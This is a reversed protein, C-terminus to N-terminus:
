GRLHYMLVAGAIGVNLSEAQGYIPIYVRKDAKELLKEKIGQGENGVILAANSPSELQQFPVADQLASAWIEIGAEISQQVFENLDGTSVPIHFISGQTARIVKDNYADVTGTGLVVQDFGAADATRILTGVNGPDQVADLMLTLRAPNYTHDKQKVVAAIGQPTETEAIARFVTDSVLVSPLGEPITFDTGDRIILEIIEWDSNLVEEVLHFGEVIFMGMQNRYKRKHLKKWEKVKANQLSTLM